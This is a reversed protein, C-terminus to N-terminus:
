IIELLVLFILLSLAWRLTQILQCSKRQGTPSATLCQQKQRELARFRMRLLEIKLQQLNGCGVSLTVRWTIEPLM